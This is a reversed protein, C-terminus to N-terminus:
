RKPGAIPRLNGSSNKLKQTVSSSVREIAKTKAEVKRVSRHQVVIAMVVILVFMAASGLLEIM